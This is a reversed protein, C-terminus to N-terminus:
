ASRRQAAARREWDERQEPSLADWAARARNALRMRIFHQGHRELAVYWVAKGGEKGDIGRHTTQHLCAGVDGVDYRKKDSLHAFELPGSCTPPPDLLKRTDADLCLECGRAHCFHMFGWERPRRRHATGAKRDPKPFAPAPILNPIIKRRKSRKGDTALTPIIKSRRQAIGWRKARLPKRPKPPRRVPKPCPTV